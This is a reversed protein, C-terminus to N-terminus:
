QTSDVGEPQGVVVFQLADSNLNEKAVRSIDEVTVANVRDNRTNAYDIPFYDLQSSVLIRAIRSNGDFRLAYSGTLYKKAKELEDETVGEEAMRAWETRIVDIAQGITGNGSAVSGGYYQTAEMWNLYSYVGYTLGRKERVEETLRSGFGGGGLIHNMVYVPMFDPHQMNIDSDQAWIAVSQPSPFDVVTVGAPAAFEVKEPLPAGTAPLAGLLRDLMPGLEAATVDGVVGIVLHDKGLAAKHAAVLDDRTLATVSEITGDSPRGYPHDGFAIESMTKQAIAQPDELASQLGTIVQGRVREIAPANFAPEVIAKRLLDLAEDANSKLVQASIRVSDRGADFSFNAALSETARRYAAADMDGTGEELLGMMLNTAGLNEPTDLSTGGRFAIQLAIFPISPENVLWAKIGGESTVEEIKIQAAAPLAILVMVCVAAFKRIM